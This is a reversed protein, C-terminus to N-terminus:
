HTVATLAEVVKASPHLQVLDPMSVAGAVLTQYTSFTTTISVQSSGSGSTAMFKLPTYSGPQVYLVEDGSRSSISIANQGNVSANQNVTLGPLKLLSAILDSFTAPAQGQSPTVNLFLLKNSPASGSSQTQQLALAARYAPDSVLPFISALESSLHSELITNPTLSNYSEVDGAAVTTTGTVSGSQTDSWYDYPATQQQWSEITSTESAPGDTGNNAGTITFDVTETRVVHLIGDGTGAVAAAAHEIVRKAWANSVAGPTTAAPLLNVALFAGGAATVALAGGLAVRLRTARIRGRPVPPAEPLESLLRQLALELEDSSPKAPLPNMSRMLEDIDMPGNTRSM